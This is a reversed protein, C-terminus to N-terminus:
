IHSHAVQPNQSEFGSGKSPCGTSKVVKEAGQHYKTLSRGGCVAAATVAVAVFGEKGANEM